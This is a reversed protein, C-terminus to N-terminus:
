TECRIFLYNRWSKLKFSAFERKQICKNRKKKPENEANASNFSRRVFFNRQHKENCRKCGFPEYIKLTVFKHKFLILNQIHMDYKRIGNRKERGGGRERENWIIFNTRLLFFRHPLHRHFLLLLLFSLYLLSFKCM